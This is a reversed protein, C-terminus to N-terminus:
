RPEFERNPSDLRKGEISENEIGHGEEPLKTM